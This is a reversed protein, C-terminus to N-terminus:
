IPNTSEEKENESEQPEDEHYCSDCIFSYPDLFYTLEMEMNVERKCKNCNDHEPLDESDLRWTDYSSPLDNM